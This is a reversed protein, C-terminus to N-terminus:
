INYNRFPIYMSFVRKRQLQEEVVIITWFNFCCEVILQFIFKQKRAANIARNSVPRPFNCVTHLICLGTYLIITLLQHTSTVASRSITVSNINMFCDLGLATNWELDNRWSACLSFLIEQKFKVLIIVSRRVTVGSFYPQLNHCVVARLRWLFFASPMEACVASTKVPKKKTLCFVQLRM